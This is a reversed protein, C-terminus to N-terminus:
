CDKAASGLGILPLASRLLGEVLGLAGGILVDM